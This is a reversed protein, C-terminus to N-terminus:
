AEPLFIKLKDPVQKKFKEIEEPSNFYWKLFDDFNQRYKAMVRENFDGQHFELPALNYLIDDLSVSLSQKFNAVEEDNGLCWVLIAQLNDGSFRLPTFFGNTLKYRVSESVAQKTFAVVQEKSAFTDVFNITYSCSPYESYICHSLCYTAEISSLVQNKFDAALDANSFADDIFDNMSKMRHLHEIRLMTDEGLFCSQLLRRKLARRKQTEPCCFVLFDNLENFYGTKLVEICYSSIINYEAMTTEKFKAIDNENKFCLKMIQHIDKGRTDVILNLWNNNWFVNRQEFSADSLISLLFRIERFQTPFMQVREVLWDQRSLVNKIASRKLEDPATKWIECCLYTKDETNSMHQLIEDSNENMVEESIHNNTEADVIKEVLKTFTNEKMKDKIYMWTPLLYSEYRDDFLLNFILDSGREAVFEDLEEEDLKPLFFRAFYEHDNSYLAEAKRLQNEPNIRSWFYEMASTNNPKRGLAFRDVSDDGQDPIRHLENKLLYVWYYLQPFSYFDIENLDLKGSVSPWLRRVEDEFCYMCAIKFKEDAGIRDCMMMQKATRVYHITGDWDCKFDNFDHFIGTSDSRHYDFVQLFHHINWDSVSSTFREIYEEIIRKISSPVNPILTKLSIDPSSLFENLNHNTRHKNLELNWLEVVFANSSIEKLAVPSPYILDYVNSVLETM